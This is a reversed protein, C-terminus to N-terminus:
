DRYLRMRFVENDKLDIWKLFMIYLYVLSKVLLWM